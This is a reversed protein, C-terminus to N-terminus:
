RLIWSGGLYQGHLQHYIQDVEPEGTINSPLYACNAQRATDIAWMTLKKEIECNKYRADRSVLLGFDQLFSEKLYYPKRKVVLLCGVIKNRHIALLPKSTKQNLFETLFARISEEDVTFGTNDAIQKAYPICFDDIIAKSDKPEGLRYLIVLPKTM